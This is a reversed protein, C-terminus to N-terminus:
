QIRSLLTPHSDREAVLTKRVWAYEPGWGSYRPTAWLGLERAAHYVPPLGLPSFVDAKPGEKARRLYYYAKYESPPREWRYRTLSMVEASNEADFQRFGHSWAFDAMRHSRSSDYFPLSYVDNVATDVLADPVPIQIMNKLHELFLIRARFSCSKLVSYNDWNVPVGCDATLFLQSCACCDCCNCLTWPDRAKCLRGSLFLAYIIPEFGIHDPVNLLTLMEKCSLLLRLGQPWTCCLHLATEGNPGRESVLSPLARSGLLARVEPESKRLIAM